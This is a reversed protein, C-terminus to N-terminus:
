NVISGAVFLCDRPRNASRTQTYYGGGVRISGVILLPGM